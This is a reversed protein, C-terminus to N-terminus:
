LSRMDKGFIPKGRSHNRERDASLGSGRKVQKVQFSIDKARDQLVNQISAGTVIQHLYKPHPNLPEGNVVDCQLRIVM